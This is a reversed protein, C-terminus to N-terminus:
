LDADNLGFPLKSVKLWGNWKLEELMWLETLGDNKGLLFISLNLRECFSM